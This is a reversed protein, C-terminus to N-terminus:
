LIAYQHEDPSHHQHHSPHDTTEPEIAFHRVKQDISPYAALPVTDYRKGMSSVGDRHHRFLLVARIGNGVELTTDHCLLHHVPGHQQFQHQPTHHIYPTLTSSRRYDSIVSCLNNSEDDDEDHIIHVGGNLLKTGSFPNSNNSKKKPAATAPSSGEAQFSPVISLTVKEM